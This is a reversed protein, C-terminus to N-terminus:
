NKKTFNIFIVVFYDFILSFYYYIIVLSVNVYLLLYIISFCCLIAANSM